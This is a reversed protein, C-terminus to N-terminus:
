RPHPNTPKNRGQDTTSSMMAEISEVGEAYEQRLNAILQASHGKFDQSLSLSLPTLM